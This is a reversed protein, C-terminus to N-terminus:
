ICIEQFINKINEEWDISAMFTTFFIDNHHNIFSKNLNLITLTVILM